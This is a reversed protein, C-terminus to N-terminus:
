AKKPLGDEDLNLLDDEVSFPHGGGLLYRFFILIASPVAFFLVSFELGAGLLYWLVALFFFVFVETYPFGASGTEEREHELAVSGVYGCSKCTYRQDTADYADDLTTSRTYGIETSGCNPCILAM